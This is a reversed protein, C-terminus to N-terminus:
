VSPRRRRGRAPGGQPVAVLRSLIGDVRLPIEGDAMGFKALPDFGIREQESGVINSRRGAAAASARTAVATGDTASADKRDPSASSVAAVTIAQNTMHTTGITTM